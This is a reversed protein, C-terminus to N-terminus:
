GRRARILTELDQAMLAPDFPPAFAGRLRAQPDALVVASSHVVAYTEAGTTHEDVRYALGLQGALGSLQPHTGSVGRFDPDFHRVYRRLTEPDDREPDVSVFVVQYLGRGALGANELRDGMRDLDYLTSPCVDPCSTFGFFLLSWRGRLDDLGFRTGDPQSLGFETIARPEPLLALARLEPRPDRGALLGIALGTAAVMVAASVLAIVRRRVPINLSQEVM